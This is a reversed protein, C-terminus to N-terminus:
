QYGKAKLQTQITASLSRGFNKGTDYLQQQVIKKFEPLNPKSAKAIAILNEVETQDYNSDFINAIQQMYPTYDIGQHIENWVKPPVGPKQQKYADFFKNVILQTNAEMQLIGLLTKIEQKKVSTQAHAVTLFLLIPIVLLKKM